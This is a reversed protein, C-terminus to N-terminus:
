TLAELLFHQVAWRLASHVFTGPLLLCRLSLKTLRKGEIHVVSVLKQLTLFYIVQLTYFICSVFAM